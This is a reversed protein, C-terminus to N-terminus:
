KKGPKKKVTTKISSGQSDPDDILATKKKNLQDLELKTQEVKMHWKAYEDKKEDTMLVAEAKRVEIKHIESEHRLKEQNHSRLKIVPIFWATWFLFVIGTISAAIGLVILFGFLVELMANINM